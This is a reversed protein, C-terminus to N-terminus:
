PADRMVVGSKCVIPVLGQARLDLWGSSLRGASWGCISGLVRARTPVVWHGGGGGQGKRGKIGPSVSGGQPGLKTRLEELTDLMLHELSLVQYRPSGRAPQNQLKGCGSVLGLATHFAHPLGEADARGSCRFEPLVCTKEGMGEAGCDVEASTPEM